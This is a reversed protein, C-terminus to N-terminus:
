GSRTPATRPTTSRRGCSPTGTARPPDRAADRAARGARGPLRPLAEHEALRGARVRGPQPGLVGGPPARPDVPVARRQVARRPAHHARRLARRRLDRRDAQRTLAQSVGRLIPFALGHDGGICSWRRAPASWRRSWRASAIGPARSARTCCTSTASTPSGARRPSTSTRARARLHPLHPLRAPRRGPGGQRRPPRPDHRRVPDRAPARAPRRARGDPPRHRRGPAEYPDRVGPVLSPPPILLNRVDESLAAPM